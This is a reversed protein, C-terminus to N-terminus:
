KNPQTPDQNHHVLKGLQLGCDERTTANSSLQEMAHPIKTGWGPTLGADGANCISFPLTLQETM